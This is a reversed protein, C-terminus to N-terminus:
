LSDLLFSFPKQKQRQLGTNGRGKMKSDNEGIQVEEMTQLMLQILYVKKFVEGGGRYALARGQSARKTEEKSEKKPAQRSQLLTPNQGGSSAGASASGPNAAGAPLSCIPQLGPNVPLAMNAQMNQYPLMPAGLGAQYLTFSDCLVYLGPLFYRSFFCYRTNGQSMTTAHGSVAFFDIDHPSTHPAGFLVVRVVPVHDETERNRQVNCVKFDRVKGAQLCVQQPRVAQPHPSSAPSTSAAAAAASPASAAAPASPASPRAAPRDSANFFSPPGDFYASM